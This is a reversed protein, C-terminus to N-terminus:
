DTERVELQIPRHGLHLTQEQDALPGQSWAM